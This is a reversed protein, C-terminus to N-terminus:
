YSPPYRQEAGKDPSHFHNHLVHLGNEYNKFHYWPIFHFVKM